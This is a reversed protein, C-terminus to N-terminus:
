AVFRRRRRLLVLAGGLAVLGGGVLAFTTADAGTKPLEAGTGGAGQGPAATGTPSPGASPTAPSATASPAPDTIVPLHLTLNIDQNTYRQQPALILRLTGLGPSPGFRLQFTDTAGAALKVDRYIECSDGERSPERYTPSLLEANTRLMLSYAGVTFSSANTVKITVTSTGDAHPAVSGRLRLAARSPWNVKISETRGSVGDETRGTVSGFETHDFIPPTVMSRVRLHYTRSGGAPLVATRCLVQEKDRGGEAMCDADGKGIILKTPVDVLFFGRGPTSGTNRVTVNLDGMPSWPDGNLFVLYDPKAKFPADHPTPTAAVTPATTPSASATPTPQPTVPTPAAMAPTALALASAAVAGTLMSRFM